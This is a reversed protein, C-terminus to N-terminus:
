VLIKIRDQKEFNLVVEERLDEREERWSYADVEM